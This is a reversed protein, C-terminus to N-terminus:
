PLLRRGQGIENNPAHKLLVQAWLGGVGPIPEHTNAGLIDSDASM